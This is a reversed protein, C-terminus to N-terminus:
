AIGPENYGDLAFPILNAIVDSSYITPCINIGNKSNACRNLVLKVPLDIQKEDSQLGFNFV